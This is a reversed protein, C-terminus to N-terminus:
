VLGGRASLCPSGWPLRSNSSGGRGVEDLADVAKRWPGSHRRTVHAPQPGVDYGMESFHFTPKQNAVHSPVLMVLQGTKLMQSNDAARSVLKPGSAWFPMCGTRMRM